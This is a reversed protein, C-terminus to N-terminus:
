ARDRAGGIGAREMLAELTEYPQAGVVGLGNAVFTPVGTVGAGLARRWHADITSRYRRDRIVEGAEDPDLGAQGAAEMLVDVDALNSAEVFYARFLADHLADTAGAADGWVALEQALRSNFTHTRDGYELGEARMLAGLRAKMEALVEERGAFLDLLSRGEEPTDPHLPFYTYRVM